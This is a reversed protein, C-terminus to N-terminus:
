RNPARPPENERGLGSRNGTKSPKGLCRPQSSAGAAGQGSTRQRRPGGQNGGNPKGCKDDSSKAM